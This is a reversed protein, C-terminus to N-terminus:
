KTYTNLTKKYIFDFYINVITINRAKEEVKKDVIDMKNLGDTIDLPGNNNNTNNTNNNENKNYYSNPLINSMPIASNSKEKIINNHNNNSLKLSLNITSHTDNQM